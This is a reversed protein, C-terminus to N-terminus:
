DLRGQALHLSLIFIPFYFRNIQEVGFFPAAQLLPKKLRSRIAGL